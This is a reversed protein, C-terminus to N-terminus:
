LLNKLNSVSVHLSPRVSMSISALFCSVVSSKFVYRQLLEKELPKLSAVVESNASLKWNPRETYTKLLLRSVEGGRRKNFLILRTMILQSLKRWSTYKHDTMVFPVLSSIEEMIYKRVMVLDETLPLLCVEHDKRRKLSNLANSSISDTWEAKHLARFDESEQKAIDDTKRIAMGLKVDCIKHLLHGLRLALSPKDFIRRGEKSIYLGCLEETAKVVDDFHAATVYDNLSLTGDVQRTNLMILLRSLQRMRQTIDRGRGPGLKKLLVCGFSLILDDAVVTLYVSDTRAHALVTKKIHVYKGSVGAQELVAGELLVRSSALITLRHRNQAQTEIEECAFPCKQVHRWLEEQVYFGFCHPCPVFDKPPRVKSPRKAVIINSHGKALVEVNHNFNGLCKIKDLEKLYNANKMEKLATIKQVATETKHTNLLHRGIKLVEKKCYYCAQVKDLKHNGNANKSSRQVSISFFCCHSLKM